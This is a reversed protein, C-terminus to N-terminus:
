SEEFTNQIKPQTFTDKQYRKQSVKSYMKKISVKFGPHWWAYILPNLLSNSIILVSLPNSLLYALYECHEFDMNIDCRAYLIYTVFFPFWTIFYAGTTFVVIKVAKWKNDCFYPTIELTKKQCCPLGFCRVRTPLDEDACNSTIQKRGHFTRLDREHIKLSYNIQNRSNLAKKLIICYLVLVLLIPVMGTIVAILFIKPPVLVLFWCNGGNMPYQWTFIPVLGMLSGLIWVFLVAYYPHKTTIYRHYHLGNLIYLYRDIAILAITSTSAINAAILMGLSISCSIENEVQHQYIFIFLTKIGILM